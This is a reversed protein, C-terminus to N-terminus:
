PDPTEDSMVNIYNFVTRGDVLGMSHRGGDAESYAAAMQRKVQLTIAIASDASGNLIEVTDLSGNVGAVRVVGPNDDLQHGGREYWTKWSEDISRIPWTDRGYDGIMVLATDTRPPALVNLLVSEGAMLDVVTSNQVYGSDENLILYPIFASMDKEAAITMGQFVGGSLVEPTIVADSESNVRSSMNEGFCGSLPALFMVTVLIFAQLGKSGGMFGGGVM